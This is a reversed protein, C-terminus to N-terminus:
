VHTSHRLISDSGLLVTQSEVMGLALTWDTPKNVNEIVGLGELRHLENQLLERLALPVRRVSMQVPNASSEM